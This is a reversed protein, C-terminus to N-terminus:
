EPSPPPAKAALIDTLREVDVDELVSKGGSERLRAVLEVRLMDIYGHLMRRRFSVEREEDQYREILAKLEDDTLPLEVIEKVGEAGIRAPVGLYVDSVGYQGEVWACVPMLAGTDHVVAEVMAEAASSPAYYASGTKLFAVIEAGGDRTRQVIEEITADDLLERLPKGGVKVLSPVPVMTDGHSGLTMADVESPSVDLREAVFHKFRATDLMGAQGM